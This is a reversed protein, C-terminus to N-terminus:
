LNIEQGDNPVNVKENSQIEYDGRHIAYFNCKNYKEAFEELKELSIHADKKVSVLTTTDVFMYNAQECMKFFNDCIGTDGTYGVTTNDKKLLYGHVPNCGGHKLELSTIEYNEFNYTDKDKLEIFELNYKQEIDEYANEDGDAFSFKMM